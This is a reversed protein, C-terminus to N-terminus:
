GSCPAIELINVNAASVLTFYFYETITWCTEPKSFGHWSVFASTIGEWDTASYFWRLIVYYRLVELVLRTEFLLRTEMVLRPGGPALHPLLLGLLSVTEVFHFTFM